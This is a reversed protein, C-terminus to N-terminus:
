LIRLFLPDFFTSFAFFESSTYFAHSRLVSPHSFKSSASFESFEYFL